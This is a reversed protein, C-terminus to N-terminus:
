KSVYEILADLLASEAEYHTIKMEIPRIVDRDKYCGVYYICGEMSDDQYLNVSCPVGKVERFWELAESITPASIYEFHMNHNHYEGFWQAPKDEENIKFFHTCEEDYGLKKLKKAQEFTVLKSM